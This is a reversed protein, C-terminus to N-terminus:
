LEPSSPPPTISSSSSDSDSASTDLNQKPTNSTDEFQAMFKLRRNQEKFFDDNSNKGQMLSASGNPLSVRRRTLFILEDGSGPDSNHANQAAAEELLLRNHQNNSDDHRHSSNKRHRLSKRVKEIASEIRMRNSIMSVKPWTRIQGMTM